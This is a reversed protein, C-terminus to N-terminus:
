AAAHEHVREQVCEHLKRLREGLQEAFHDARYEIVDARHRVTGLHGYVRKVLADGGHGLERAVTYNSVPHGRDLTQLRAATYTHRFAYPRVDGAKWGAQVAVHDLVKRIDIILGDNKVSPFLLREQPALPGHLYEDIISALQPWLPIARWSEDTKLRRWQNRRFTVTKREFCVDSIELGFVEAPRGGTLLFTAILPYVFPIAPAGNRQEAVYLRASELFLAADHVELWNAERRGAGDQPKDMLGSVPNYGVPVKRESIARRYLNSLSNLYKRQSSLSLMAGHRAPRSALWEVYAQVDTVGISDLERDEIGTLIPADDEGRPLAKGGNCFFEIAAILHMEVSELWQGTWRQSRSKAVMHYAVYPALYTDGEPERRQKRRRRTELDGIREAALAQALKEDTTAREAGKPILAERSGGVDAFDRFDGYYRRVGGQNRTYM